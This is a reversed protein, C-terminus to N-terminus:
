FKGTNKIVKDTLYIGGGYVLCILFFVAWSIWNKFWFDRMQQNALYTFMFLGPILVSSMILLPTNESVAIQLKRKLRYNSDLMDEIVEIQDELNSGVNSSLEICGCLFKLTENSTRKRLTNLAVQFSGTETLSKAIKLERFLPDETNDIANVLAREPTESAQINSKLISLFAPIQEDFIRNRKDIKSNFFQQTFTIISFIPILGIGFNQFLLTMVGYIVVIIFLFLLGLQQDSMQEDDVLGADKVKRGWYFNWREILNGDAKGHFDTDDLEEGSALKIQDLFNQTIREKNQKSRKVTLIISLLIVLLLTTIIIPAYQYTLM